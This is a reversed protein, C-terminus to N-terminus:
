GQPNQPNHPHQKSQMVEASLVLLELPVAQYITSAATCLLLVARLTDADVVFKTTEPNSVEAELLDRIKKFLVPNQLIRAGLKVCKQCM